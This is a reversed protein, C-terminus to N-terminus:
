LLRHPPGPFVIGLASDTWVLQFFLWALAPVGGWMGESPPVTGPTTQVFAITQSDKRLSTSELSDSVSMTQPGQGSRSHSGLHGHTDQLRSEQGTWLKQSPVPLIGYLSDGRPWFLGYFTFGERFPMPQHACCSFGPWCTPIICAADEQRGQLGVLWTGRDPLSPLGKANM